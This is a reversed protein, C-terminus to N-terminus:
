SLHIFVLLIMINWGASELEHNLIALVEGPLESCKSPGGRSLVGVRGDSPVSVGVSLSPCNLCM